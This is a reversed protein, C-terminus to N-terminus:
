TIQTEKTKYIFKALILREALQLDSNQERIPKIANEVIIDGPINYM